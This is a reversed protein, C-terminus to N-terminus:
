KEVVPRDELQPHIRTMESLFLANCLIHDVHPLGSEPDVTEGALYATTHRLMSDAIETHSLGKRWNARSYKSMGYELIKAVGDLANRAELVLSL